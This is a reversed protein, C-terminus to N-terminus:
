ITTCKVYVSDSNYMMDWSSAYLWFHTESASWHKPLEVIAKGEVRNNSRKRFIENPLAENFCVINVRDNAKAFKAKSDTEYDWNFNATNTIEDIKLTVMSLPKLKGEAIQIKSYDIKLDPFTGIVAERNVQGCVTGFAIINNKYGIKIQAFLPSVKNSVFGFRSRHETQKATKPNRPETFTRFRQKGNVIYAVIPGMKGSLGMKSLDINGM